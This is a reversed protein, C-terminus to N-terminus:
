AAVSAYLSTNAIAHTHIHMALWEATAHDPEDPLPSADKAERAEAFLRQAEGQVRDLSWAGMKIDLLQKRDERWVNLQGTRLYEIGMRLLRICHAANKTDYGFKDVLQKRKEGMYGEYAQRQMKELQSHAYGVFSHYAHKSAFAERHKRMLDFLPTRMAYDEDRLWLFGVVNPNAKLLLGVMKRVSYLVVDWEDKKHVWHQWEGLGIIHRVPPLVIGMYDIDDIHNEVYTGHSLSGMVGLALLHPHLPFAGFESHMRGVVTANVSAVYDRDRESV